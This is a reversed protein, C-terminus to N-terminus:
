RAAGTGRAGDPSAIEPKLLQEGGGPVRFAEAGRAGRQPTDAAGDARSAGTDCYMPNGEVEFGADRILEYTERTADGKTTLYGDV